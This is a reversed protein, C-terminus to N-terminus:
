QTNHDKTNYVTRKLERKVQEVKNIILIVVWVKRNNVNGSIDKDM